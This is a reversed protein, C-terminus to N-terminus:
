RTGMSTAPDAAMSGWWDGRMCARPGAYATPISNITYVTVTDPVSDAKGDNVVLQVVYEGPEDM